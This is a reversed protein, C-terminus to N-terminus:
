GGESESLDQQGLKLKLSGPHLRDVLINTWTKVWCEGETKQNGILYVFPSVSLFGGNM